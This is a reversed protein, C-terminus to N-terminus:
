ICSQLVCVQNQIGQSSINKMRYFLELITRNHTICFYIFSGNCALKIALSVFVEAKVIDHELVSLAFSMFYLYSAQEPRHFNPCHWWVEIYPFKLPTPVLLCGGELIGHVQSNSNGGLCFCRGEDTQRKIVKRSFLHVCRKKVKQPQHVMGTYVNSFHAWATLHYYVENTGGVASYTFVCTVGNEQM